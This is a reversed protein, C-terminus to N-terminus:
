SCPVLSFSGLEFLAGFLATQLWTVGIAALRASSTALPAFMLPAAIRELAVFLHSLAVLARMPLRLAFRALPTAVRDLSLAYYLADGSRWREGSRRLAPAATFLALQVMFGLSAFGVFSNNSNVVDDNVQDDDDNDNDNDNTEVNRNKIGAVVGMRQARRAHARALVSDLSYRDGLPLLACWFLACLLLRDGSDLVFPNRNHLSLTMLWLAVCSLRTCYGVAFAAGVVALAALLVCQAFSSGSVAFLVRSSSPSAVDDVASLLPWAAWASDHDFAPPMREVADVVCYAGLLARMVGLSRRDLALQQGLTPVVDGLAVRAREVISHLLSLLEDGNFRTIQM